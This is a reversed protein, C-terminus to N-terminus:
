LRIRPGKSPRGCGPHRKADLRHQITSSIIGLGAYRTTRIPSRPLMLARHLAKVRIHRTLLEPWEQWAPWIGAEWATAVWATGTIDWSVRRIPILVLAIGTIPEVGRGALAAPIAVSRAEALM